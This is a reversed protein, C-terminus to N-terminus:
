GEWALIDADEDEGGQIGDAGYSYLDYPRGDRGPAIYVFPNQWADLPQDSLYGGKQFKRPIPAITTKEILADLGQASSPFKSNDLKYQILASEIGKMSNVTAVVKAEHARGLVNPAVVAALAAMIAIVVLLEILSFGSSQKTLSERTIRRM